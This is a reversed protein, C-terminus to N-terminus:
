IYPLRQAAYKQPTVAERKGVDREALNHQTFKGSKQVGTELREKQLVLNIEFGAIAVAQGSM